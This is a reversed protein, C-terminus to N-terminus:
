LVYGDRRESVVATNIVLNPFARKIKKRARRGAARVAWSEEEASTLSPCFLHSSNTRIPERCHYCTLAGCTCTMVNCGGSKIFRRKCKWCKRVLAKTMTEEVFTRAKLQLDSVGGGCSEKEKGLGQKLAQRLDWDENDTSDDSWESLCVSLESDSSLYDDSTEMMMDNNLLPFIGKKTETNATM